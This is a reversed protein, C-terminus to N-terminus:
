WRESGPEGKFPGTINSTIWGGYYKGPQPQVHEDNVFCDVKGPFFALADQLAEYGPFPKPYSWAVDEITQGNSNFTWYIALGKWECLTIDSESKVLPEFNIFEAPIYYVPPGATECVRFAQNTDALILDNHMVRVRHQVTELRPPRPYDWVSEKGAGPTDINAPRERDVNRWKKIHAKLSEPM